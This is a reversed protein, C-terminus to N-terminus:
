SIKKSATEHKNNSSSELPSHLPTVALASFADATIACELCIPMDVLVPEGDQDFSKVTHTAPRMLCRHCAIKTM